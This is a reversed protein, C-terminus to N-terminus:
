TQSGEAPPHPIAAMAEQPSNFRCRALFEDDRSSPMPEWEWEGSTNLCDGNSRVAWKDPGAMQGVRQITIANLHRSNGV